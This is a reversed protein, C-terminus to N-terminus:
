SAVLGNGEAQGAKAKEPTNCHRTTRSCGARRGRPCTDVGLTGPPRGSRRNGVLLRRDSPQGAPASRGALELAGTRFASEELTDVPPNDPQSGSQHEMRIDQLPMDAFGPRGAPYCPEPAAMRQVIIKPHHNASPHRTASRSPMWREPAGKRPKAKKTPQALDNRSM